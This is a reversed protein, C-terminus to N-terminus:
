QTDQDGVPNPTTSGYRDKLLEAASQIQQVPYRGEPPSGIAILKATEHFPNHLLHPVGQDFRVVENERLCFVGDEVEVQCQNDLMYFFEQQNEHYHYGNQSLPEGRNLAAINFNYEDIGLQPSLEWRQGPKEPNTEFEDITHHNYEPM